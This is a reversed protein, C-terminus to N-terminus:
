TVTGSLDDARRFHRAIDRIALLGVFQLTEQHVLEIM